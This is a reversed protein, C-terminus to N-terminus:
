FTIFKLYSQVNFDNEKLGLCFLAGLDIGLHKSADQMEKIFIFYNLWQWVEEAINEAM